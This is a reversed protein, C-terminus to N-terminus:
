CSSTREEWTIADNGSTTNRTLNRSVADSRQWTTANLWCSLPICGYAWVGNSQNTCCNYLLKHLLDVVHRQVLSWCLLRPLADTRRMSKVDAVFM